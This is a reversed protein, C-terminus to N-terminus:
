IIILSNLKEDYEQLILPYYMDYFERIDDLSYDKKMQRFICKAELIIIKQVHIEPVKGDCWEEAKKNFVSVYGLYEAFLIFLPAEVCIENKRTKTGVESVAKTETNM